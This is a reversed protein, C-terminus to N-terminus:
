LIIKYFKYLRVNHMREGERGGQGERERERERAREDDLDIFLLMRRHIHKTTENRVIPVHKGFDGPVPSTFGFVFSKLTQQPPVTLM